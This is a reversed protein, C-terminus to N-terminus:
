PATKTENGPIPKVLCCWVSGRWTDRYQPGIDALGCKSIDNKVCESCTKFTNTFTNKSSEQKTFLWCESNCDHEVPAKAAFSQCFWGLLFTIYLLYGTNRYCYDFDFPSVDHISLMLETITKRLSLQVPCISDSITIIANFCIYSKTFIDNSVVCMLIYQIYSIIWIVYM